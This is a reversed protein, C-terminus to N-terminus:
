GKNSIGALNRIRQISENYEDYDFEPDGNARRMTQEEQESDAYDNYEVDNIQFVAKGFNYLEVTVFANDHGFSSIDGTKDNHIGDGIVIVPDGVNLKNSMDNTGEDFEVEKTRPTMKFNRLEDMYDDVDTLSTELDDDDEGLDKTAQDTAMNNVRDAEIDGAESGTMADADSTAITINDGTAVSVIDLEGLISMLVDSDVAFGQQELDNLLNQTSVTDIGEASVAALLTIIESRLDDNYDSERLQHYRM